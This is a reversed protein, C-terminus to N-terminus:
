KKQLFYITMYLAIYNRLAEKDRISKLINEVNMMNNTEYKIAEPTATKLFKIRHHIKEKVLRLNSERADNNLTHNWREEYITLMQKPDNKGCLEIKFAELQKKVAVMKEEAKKKDQSKEEVPQEKYSKQASDSEPRSFQKQIMEQSFKAMKKKEELQSDVAKGMRNGFNKFWQLIKRLISVKYSVPMHAKADKLVKDYDLFLIDQISRRRPIDSNDDPPYFFRDVHKLITSDKNGAYFLLNYLLAPNDLVRVLFEDKKHFFDDIYNAFAGPNKLIPDDAAKTSKGSWRESFLKNIEFSVTDLKEFFIHFFHERHIFKNDGGIKLPIIVPPMNKEQPTTYKQIFNNVIEIYDRETYLKLFSHKERLQHIQTKNFMVPYSELIKLIIEESKENHSKKQIQESQVISMHKVIDAAQTINKEKENNQTYNMIETALAAWFQPERDTSRTLDEANKINAASPYMQKMKMIILSSFDRSKLMYKKLKEFARSYLRNLEDSPVILGPNSPLIVKTLQSVQELEKIKQNSLDKISVVSLFKSSLGSQPISDAMPFPKTLDEDSATFEKKIKIILNQVQEFSLSKPNILILAVIKNDKNDVTCYNKKHLSFYVKKLLNVINDEVKLANNNIRLGYEYLYRYLNQLPLYSTQYKAAYETIAMFVALENKDFIGLDNFIEVKQREDCLVWDPLEKYQKDGSDKSPEM